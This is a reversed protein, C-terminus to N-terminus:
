IFTLVTNNPFFIKVPCSAAHPTQGTCSAGPIIWEGICLIYVADKEEADDWNTWEDRIALLGGTLEKGSILGFFWWGFFMSLVAQMFSLKWKLSWSWTVFAGRSSKGCLLHVWHDRQKKWSWMHCRSHQVYCLTIYTMRIALEPKINLM